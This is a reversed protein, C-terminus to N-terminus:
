ARKQQQLAYYRLALQASSPKLREFNRQAQELSASSLASGKSLTLVAKTAPWTLSVARAIVILLEPQKQAMAKEVVEFSVGGMTAIALATHHSREAKAFQEVHDSSLQQERQLADIDAQAIRYDPTLDSQILGAVETITQRIEVSLQPQATELKARVAQSARQIIQLLLYRPIDARLGVRVSLEDDGCARGALVRYGSDSFAAGPNDAVACLVAHDGKLVLADTVTSSIATRSSVALLYDQSKQSIIRILAKDDLCPSKAIVPRAVEIADDTALTEIIRPPSHRNNSLRVALVRRAATEIRASLRLFLDDLTALQEGSFHEPASLFLSTLHDLAKLRREPSGHAIAAELEPMLENM